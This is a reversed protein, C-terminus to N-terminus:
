GGWQTAEKVSKVIYERGLIAGCADIGSIVSGMVGPLVISQGALYLGKVRTVASINTSSGASLTKKVGYASGTPTLTYDRITLPTFSDLVRVEAGSLDDDCATALVRAAVSHKAEMYGSPRGGTRSQAWPQWEEFRAAALAVLAYTGGGAPWVSRFVCHPSAAGAVLPQDYQRSTDLDRYLLASGCPLRGSSDKCVAAVGFVGTSDALSTLRRRYVPRLAQDGCLGDLGAPHGTYVVSAAEIRSGDGTRVARVEGDATEISIARAGCAVEGGRATFADVFARALPMSEEDLRWASSLFSDLLLFHVYLPCERPAVGHFLNMGTLIACLEGSCGLGALYDALSLHLADSPIRESRAKLNYLPFYSVTERMDTVFREVASRDAPFRAALRHAFADRGSPMLFTARGFRMELVGAPDLRVASIRSMVGLYELYRWLVEGEGLGGVVHVGTPFLIGERRFAQMLGGPLRNQELVLVSRGERSLALAATMGAVGSGIVIVDYRM